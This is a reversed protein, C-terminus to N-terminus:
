NYDGNLHYITFINYVIKYLSSAESSMCGLVYDYYLSPNRTCCAIRCPSASKKRKKKKRKRLKKYKYM